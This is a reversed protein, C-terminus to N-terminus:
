TYENTRDKNWTASIYIIFVALLLFLVYMVGIMVWQVISLEAMSPVKFIESDDAYNVQKMNKTMEAQDYDEDEDSHNLKRSNSLLNDHDAVAKSM